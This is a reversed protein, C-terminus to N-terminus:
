KSHLFGIFHLSLNIRCLRNTQTLTFLASPCVFPFYFDELTLVSIRPFLSHALQLVRGSSRKDRIYLYLGSLYWENFPRPAPATESQVFRTVAFRNISVNLAQKAADEYFPYVFPIVPDHPQFNRRSLFSIKKLHPHAQAFEPLWSLTAAEDLTLECLGHFKQAGFSEDVRTAYLHRIRMGCALYDEFGERRDGDDLIIKSLSFPGLESLRLRQTCFIFSQFIITPVPDCSHIATLLPMDLWIQDLNIQSLNKLHPLLDHIPSNRNGGIIRYSDDKLDLTRCLEDTITVAICLFGTYEVYRIAEAFSENAICLDILEGTLM